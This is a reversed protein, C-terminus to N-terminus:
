LYSCTSPRRVFLGSYFPFNRNLRIETLLIDYANWLCRMAHSNRSYEVFDDLINMQVFEDFLHLIDTIRRSQHLFDETVEM